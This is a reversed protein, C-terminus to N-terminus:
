VHLFKGKIETRVGEERGVHICRILQPMDCNFFFCYTQMNGKIAIKEHKMELYNKNEQIYINVNKEPVLVAALNKLALPIVSKLTLSSVTFSSPFDSMYKKLESCGGNVSGAWLASSQATASFSFDPSINKRIM